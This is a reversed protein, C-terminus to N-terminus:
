RARRRMWLAPMGVAALLLSSLLLSSPEPVSAPTQWNHGGASTITVDPEAPDADIYLLGTNSADVYGTGSSYWNLWIDLNLAETVRFPTDNVANVRWQGTSLSGSSCLDIDPVSYVGGGFNVLLGAGGLGCGVPPGTFQSQYMTAHLSLTILVPVYYDSPRPSHVTLTDFSSFTLLSYTSSSTGGASNVSTKASLTGLGATGSFSGCGFDQSDTVPAAVAGTDYVWCNLSDYIRAGTLDAKAAPSFIFLAGLGLVLMCCSEARVNCM